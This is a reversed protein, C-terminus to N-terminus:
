PYMNGSELIGWKDGTKGIRLVVTWGVRCLSSIEESVLLPGTLEGTNEFDELWLEGSEIKKITFRSNLEKDYKGHPSKVAYESIMGSAEVAAPLDAKLEKVRQDITEYDDDTM